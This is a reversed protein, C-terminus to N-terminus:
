LQVLEFAAMPKDVVLPTPEIGENVEEMGELIGNVLKIVTTGTELEQEPVGM